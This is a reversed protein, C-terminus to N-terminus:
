MEKTVTFDVSDPKKVGHNGSIANSTSDVEQIRGFSVTIQGTKPPPREDKGEKNSKRDGGQGDKPPRPPRERFLRIAGGRKGVFVKLGNPGDLPEENAQPEAAALQLWALFVTLVLCQLSIAMKAQACMFKRNYRTDM